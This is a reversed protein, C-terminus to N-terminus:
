NYHKKRNQINRLVYTLSNIVELFTTLNSYRVLHSITRGTTSHPFILRLRGDSNNKFLSSEFASTAREMVGFQCRRAACFQLQAGSRDGGEKKRKKKKKPPPPGTVFYGSFLLIPTLIGRHPSKARGCTGPGLCCGHTSGADRYSACHRTTGEARALLFFFSFFFSSRPDSGKKKLLTYPILRLPTM